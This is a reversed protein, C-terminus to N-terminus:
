IPGHIRPDYGEIFKRVEKIFDEEYKNEINSIYQNSNMMGNQNQGHECDNTSCQKPKENKINAVCGAICGGAAGAIAGAPPNGIAIGILTGVAVGMPSSETCGEECRKYASGSMYENGFIAFKPAMMFLSINEKLKQKSFGGGDVGTKQNFELIDSSLGYLKKLQKGLELDLEGLSASLINSLYFDRKKITKELLLLTPVFYGDYVGYKSISQKIASFQKFKYRQLKLNNFDIIQNLQENNVVELMQKTDNSYKTIKFLEKFEEAQILGLARNISRDRMRSVFDNAHVITSFIILQLAIIHFTKM